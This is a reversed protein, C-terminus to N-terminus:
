LILNKKWFITKQSQSRDDEYKLTIHNSILLIYPYHNKYFKSSNSYVRACLIEHVKSLLQKLSKAREIQHSVDIISFEYTTTFILFKWIIYFKYFEIWLWCLQFLIYPLILISVHFTQAWLASKIYLTM